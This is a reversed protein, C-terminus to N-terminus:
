AGAPRASSIRAPHRARGRRWRTQRAPPACLKAPPPAAEPPTERGGACACRGTVRPGVPSSRSWGVRICMLRDGHVPLTGRADSLLLPVQLRGPDSAWTSCLTRLAAPSRSREVSIRPLGVRQEGGLLLGAVFPTCQLAPLIQLMHRRQASTTLRAGRPPNGEAQSRESRCWARRKVRLPFGAIPADVPRPALRAQAGKLDPVM